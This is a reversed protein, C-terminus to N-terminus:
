DIQYTGTEKFNEETLCMGAPAKGVPAAAHDNWSKNCHKCMLMDGWRLSSDSANSVKKRNSSKGYKTQSSETPEFTTM